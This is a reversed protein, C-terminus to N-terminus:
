STPRLGSMLVADSSVEGRTLLLTKGDRTWNFDFIRGSTFRTLQRRGGGNLPQEWINSVGHDTVLYNVSRADPALLPSGAAGHAAGGPLDIVRLPSGGEAAFLAFRTRPTPEFESYAYGFTTGDASISIRGAISDGLVPVLSEPKGGDVSVRWVRKEPTFEVYYVYRGDSPCVPLYLDGAALSVPNAGDADFRRFETGDNRVSNIVVFPGCRAITEADDLRTFAGRQLGDGSFRWVHGASQVLVAGDPGDIVDRLPLSLDTLQRSSGQEPSVAWVNANSEVTIAVLTRGDATLDARLDYDALDASLRHSEIRPYSILWPQGRNERDELVLVMAEGGPLWLARGIPNASPILGAVAGTTADVKLLEYRPQVRFHMVPATITRGDPSWTPGPQYDAFTDPIAALVRNAGGDADAIRVETGNMAPVGRTYVFQRGDPSFGVPSDIDKVLQRLPGGQSPVAYLYRLSADSADRRVFYIADGAPTFTLGRYGASEAPAVLLTERGDALRRLWLGVGDAERQSYTLHLGDPSIAVNEVRGSDTIREIQPREVQTAAYRPSWARVLAATALLAGVGAAAAIILRKGRPTGAPERAISTAPEAAAPRLAELQAILEKASQFRHAREKRLAREIVADFQPPLAENLTGPAPPTLKLIAENIADITQGSFPQHGTAMEYLVVGFTFLDCRADVHEGRVQEPAMYSATGMTAGTLTLDMSRADNALRSDASREPGPEADALAKALGFDLLKVEGRATLFINAPKVDRHIIGKEHAAELGSLIGIAIELMEDFAFAPRGAASEIRQRLTQGHLLQMALFPKDEHEGVEFITCINPHDLASLTRAERQLRGIALRDGSFEEGLFKLAVSRGLQLDEAKYVIGMGGGGLVELLRYHSIRRGIPSVPVASTPAESSDSLAPRDIWVVPQMWRYGRRTLTEIFRPRDASDGLVQRLRNVAANISHEFEVVTNNPWLARRLEERLVVDNPREILALLIRFPQESLRVPAGDRQRLEASRLDLEFHGFRAARRLTDYSGVL